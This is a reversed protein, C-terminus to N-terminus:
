FASIFLLKIPWLVRPGNQSISVACRCFQSCETTQNSAIKKRNIKIMKSLVTGFLFIVSFRFSSGAPICHSFSRNGKSCPVDPPISVCMRRSCGPWSILAVNSSYTSLIFNFAAKMTVATPEKVLAVSRKACLGSLPSFSTHFLYCNLTHNYNLWRTKMSFDWPPIDANCFIYVAYKCKYTNIRPFVYLNYDLIVM